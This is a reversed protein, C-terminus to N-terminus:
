QYEKPLAVATINYETRILAIGNDITINGFYPYSAGSQFVGLLAGTGSHHISITGNDYITFVAKKVRQLHGAKGAPNSFTVVSDDALNLGTLQTGQQFFAMGGSPGALWKGYSEYSKFGTNSLAAAGLTFRTLIYEDKDLNGDVSYIYDNQLTTSYNGLRSIDALPNYNTRSSLKGTAPNMQVLTLQYGPVAAATDGTTAHAPERLIFQGEQNSVYSYIGETRWLRKGTAPDLGYTQTRINDVTSSVVLVGSYEGYITGVYMPIDKNEWLKKGTVPNYAAVGGYENAVYVKGNILSAQAGIEIPQEAVKVKWILKGTAASVKVLQEHNDIFFVSNNTIIQPHAGQNYSWQTQGSAMNKAYLTQNASFFLMGNKVSPESDFMGAGDTAIQWKPELQRATYSTSATISSTNVSAAHATDPTVNQLSVAATSSLLSISLLSTLIPRIPPM